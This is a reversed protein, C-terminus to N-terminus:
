FSFLAVTRRVNTQSLLEYYSMSTSFVYTTNCYGHITSNQVVPAAKLFSWFISFIEYISRLFRYLVQNESVLRLELSCLFVLSYICRTCASGAKRRIKQPNKKTKKNQKTKKQPPLSINQKTKACHFILKPILIQSCKTAGSAVRDSSDGGWGM